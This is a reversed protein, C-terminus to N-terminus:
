DSFRWRTADRPFRTWARASRPRLRFIGRTVPEPHLEGYKTDWSAIIRAAVDADTVSEVDEGVGDVIVVETGSELHMSIAPNAAMNRAWRATPIGDFYLHGDVWVGWLPALHPRGDPSTTALWYNQAQELREEVSAWSLLPENADAVEYGAPLQLRGAIPEQRADGNM